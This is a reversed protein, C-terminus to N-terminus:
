LGIPTTDRYIYAIAVQSATITMVLPSVPIKLPHQAPLVITKKCYGRVVEPFQHSYQLSTVNEISVFLPMNLTETVAFIIRELDFTNM